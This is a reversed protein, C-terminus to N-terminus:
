ACRKENLPRLHHFIRTVEGAVRGAVGPEATQITDWVAQLRNAGLVVAFDRLEFFNARRLAAAVYVDDAAGDPNSWVFHRYKARLNEMTTVGNVSVMSRGYPEARHHEVGRFERLRHRPLKLCSWALLDDNTM